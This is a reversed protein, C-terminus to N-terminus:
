ASAAKEDAQQESLVTPPEYYNPLPPAGALQEKLFYSIESNSGMRNAVDANLCRVVRWGLKTVIRDRLVDKARLTYGPRWYHMDSDLELNIKSDHFAFDLFIGFGVHHEVKVPMGIIAALRQAYPSIVRSAPNEQITCDISLGDTPLDLQAFEHPFCQLAALMLQTNSGHVVKVRGDDDTPLTSLWDSMIDKPITDSKQMLVCALLSDRLMASKSQSQSKDERFDNEMQEADIAKYVHTLLGSSIEDKAQASLVTSLNGLTSAFQNFSCGTTRAAMERVNLDEMLNKFNFLDLGGEPLLGELAHLYINAVQKGPETLKTAFSKDEAERRKFSSTLLDELRTGPRTEATGQIKRDSSAKSGPIRKLIDALRDSAQSGRQPDQVKSGLDRMGGKQKQSDQQRQQRREGRQQQQQRRESRQQQGDRRDRRQRNQRLDSDRPQKQRRDSRQLQQLQQQQQQGDRRDRRQRNQQQGDKRQGGRDDQKQIRSAHQEQTQDSGARRQREEPKQQQGQKARVGDRIPRVESEPRKDFGKSKNGSNGASSDTSYFAFRQSIQVGVARVPTANSQASLTRPVRLLSTRYM